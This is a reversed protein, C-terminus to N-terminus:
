GQPLLSPPRCAPASTRCGAQLWDPDQRLWSLVLAPCSLFCLFQYDVMTRGEVSFPRLSLTGSSSTTSSAPLSVILVNSPFGIRPLNVWINSSSLPPKEGGTRRGCTLKSFIIQIKQCFFQNINVNLFFLIPALCSMDMCSIMTVSKNLRIWIHFMVVDIFKRKSYRCIHRKVSATDHCWFNIKFDYHHSWIDQYGSM